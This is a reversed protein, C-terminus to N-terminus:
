PLVDYNELSQSVKKMFDVMENVDQDNSLPEMYYNWQTLLHVIANNFRREIEKLFKNYEDGEFSFLNKILNDIDKKVSKRSNLSTCHPLDQIATLLFGHLRNLIGM